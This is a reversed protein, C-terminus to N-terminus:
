KDLRKKKNLNTKEKHCPLCLTQLNSLDNTGGDTQEIVHDVEWTHTFPTFGFNRLLYYSPPLNYRWRNRTISNISLGAHDIIRKVLACDRNCKTCIENDRKKVIKRIPPM